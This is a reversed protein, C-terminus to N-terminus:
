RKGDYWISCANRNRLTSGPLLVARTMFWLHQRLTYLQLKRASTVLPHADLIVVRKNHEAAVAKLKSSLDLEEAAFLENSFGAVERFAAAECFIFSGALLTFRKSVWNWIGAFRNAWPLDGELVVTSGGVLCDGSAIEFAVLEFLERCPKCDADIFLLWDGSAAAAGRNRAGGIRNVPEFVVTAGSARAIQATADTSNNDCVILERHWGRELFAASAELIHRLTDALLREENFAPVIVSLKL